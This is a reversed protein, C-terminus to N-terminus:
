FLNGEFRGYPKRLWMGSQIGVPGKGMHHSAHETMYSVIILMGM